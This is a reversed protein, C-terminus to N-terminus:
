PGPNVKVLFDRLAAKIKDAAKGAKKVIVKIRNTKQSNGM